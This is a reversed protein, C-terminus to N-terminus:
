GQAVRAAAQTISALDAGMQRTVATQEEVASAIAVQLDDIHSVVGSIEGIAAIMRQADTEIAAIVPGIEGTATTTGKALEKVENAVVAFGRGAEGARAAEITANLALLNTQEAISRIYTSVQAIKATSEGLKAAMEAMTGATAVARGATGAAESANTSIEGISALMQETAAAVQEVRQQIDGLDAVRQTGLEEVQAAIEQEHSVDEWVVVYWAVEGDPRRVVNIRTRMTVAGFTLETEHPLAHPDRLIREVNAPDRHFRLISGGLLQGQGVGSVARVDAEIRRVTASAVPNLYVLNLDADALFVNAPVADLVAWLAAGTEHWALQPPTSAPSRTLLPSM